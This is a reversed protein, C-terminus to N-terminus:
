DVIPVEWCRCRHHIPSATVGIEYASIPFVLGHMAGCMECRREDVKTYFQYKTIGLQRFIMRRAMSGIATSESLGITTLLTEMSKFRKNLKLLLAEINQRKHFAQKIDMLIYACWIAVDDELRERWTKDDAGWSEDLPKDAIDSADADFFEIEKGIVDELMRKFEPTLENRLEDFNESVFMLLVTLRRRHDKDSIWKRAETYTIVGDKGYRSYFNRLEYELSSKVSALLAIMALIAEDTIERETEELRIFEAETAM